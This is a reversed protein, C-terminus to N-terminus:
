EGFRWGGVWRVVLFTTELILLLRGWVGVEVEVGVKVKIGVEVGVEVEVM